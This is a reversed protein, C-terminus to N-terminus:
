EAELKAAEAQLDKVILDFLKPAGAEGQAVLQAIEQNAYKEALPKIFAAFPGFDAGAIAKAAAAEAAAQVAPAGGDVAAIAAAKDADALVVFDALAHGVWEAVVNKAM